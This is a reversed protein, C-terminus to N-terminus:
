EVVFGAEKSGAAATATGAPSPAPMRSHKHFAVAQYGGLRVALRGNGDVSMNYPCAATCPYCDELGPGQAVVNCYQGAQMNTNVELSFDSAGINVAVFAQAGGPFNGGRTMALVKDNYIQFPPEAGASGAAKRWAVMNRVEPWRHECAFPKAPRERWYGCGDPFASTTPAVQDWTDPNFNLSSLINPQGYSNTPAANAITVSADAMAAATPLPAACLCCPHHKIPHHTCPCTSSPCFLGSPYSHIWHSARNFLLVASSQQQLDTNDQQM